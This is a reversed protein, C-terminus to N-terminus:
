DNEFLEKFQKPNKEKMKKMNEIYEEIQREESKRMNKKVEEIKISDEGVIELKVVHFADAIKIPKNKYDSYLTDIGELLQILPIGYYHMNEEYFKRMGKAYDAIHKNKENKEYAYLGIALDMMDRNHRNMKNFGSVYGIV